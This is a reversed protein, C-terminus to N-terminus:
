DQTQRRSAALHSVCRFLCFGHAMYVSSEEAHNACLQDSVEKTLALQDTVHRYGLHFSVSGERDSVSCVAPMKSLLAARERALQGLKGYFLRRLHLLDQEQAETYKLAVQMASTADPWQSRTSMTNDAGLALMYLNAEQQNTCPMALTDVDTQRYRDTQSSNTQQDTQKDVSQGSATHFMVYLAHPCHRWALAAAAVPLLFGLSHCPQSVLLDQYLNNPLGEGFPCQDSQVSLSEKVAAAAKHATSMWCCVFCGAMELSYRQLDLLSKSESDDSIDLLCQAMKHVYAQLALLRSLISVLYAFSGSSLTCCVTYDPLTWPSSLAPNVLLM